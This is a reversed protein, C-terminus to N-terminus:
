SRWHFRCAGPKRQHSQNTQNKWVTHELPVIGAGAQHGRDRVQGTLMRGHGTRCILDRRTNRRM